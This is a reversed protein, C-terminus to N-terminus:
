DDDVETSESKAKEVLREFNKMMAGFNLESVVNVKVEGDAARHLFTGRIMRSDNSFLKRKREILADILWKYNDFNILVNNLTARCETEFDDKVTENWAIAACDTLISLEVEDSWPEMLEVVKASIKMEDPMDNFDMINQKEYKKQMQPPLWVSKNRKKKASM